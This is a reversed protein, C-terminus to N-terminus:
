QLNKEEGGEVRKMIEASGRPKVRLENRIELIGDIQECLDEVARKMPRSEVTGNLIVIADQVHVSIESADIYPDWTLRECVDEHIREDSRRYGKPGKGKHALNGGPYHKFENRGFMPNEKATNPSGFYIGEYHAGQGFQDHVYETEDQLAETRSFQRDGERFTPQYPRPM